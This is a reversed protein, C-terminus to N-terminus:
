RFLLEFPLAFWERVWYTPLLILNTDASVAGLGRSIGLKRAILRARAQHFGDSVVAINESAGQQRIIEYSLQINEKTNVATEELFIRDPDIGDATMVNYMCQAETITAKDGLGGTAVCISGPNNKLYEEGAKIRGYLILSPNEGKVQAGLMIESSNEKPPISACVGMVASVLFAYIIFAYICVRGIKWLIGTLKKSYFANRIKVFVARYNFFFLVSLCMLMGFINYPIVIGYIVAPLIFWVLFVAGAATMIVRLASHFVSREANKDKDEPFPTKQKIIKEDACGMFNRMRQKEKM